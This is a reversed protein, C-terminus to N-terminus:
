KDLLDKNNTLNEESAIKGQEAQYQKYADAYYIDLLYNYVRDDGDIIIDSILGNNMASHWTKVDGGYVKYLGIAAHHCYDPYDIYYSYSIDSGDFFYDLRYQRM